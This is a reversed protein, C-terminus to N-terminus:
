VWSTAVRCAAVPLRKKQEKPRKSCGLRYSPGPTLSQRTSFPCDPVCVKYISAQADLMAAVMLANAGGDRRADEAGCECGKLGESCAKELSRFAAVESRQSVAQGQFAMAVMM